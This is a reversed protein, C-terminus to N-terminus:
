AADGPLDAVERGDMLHPLVPDPAAQAAAALYAAKAHTSKRVASVPAAEGVASFGETPPPESTDLPTPAEVAAKVTIPWRGYAIGRAWVKLWRGSVVERHDIVQWQALWRAFALVAGRAEECSRYTRGSGPPAYSVDAILYRAHEDIWWCAQPLEPLAAMASAAQFAALQARRGPPPATPRGNPPRADPGAEPTLAATESPAAPEVAEVPEVAKTVPEDGSVPHRRRPM